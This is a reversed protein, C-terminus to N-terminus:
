SAFYFVAIVIAIVVLGIVAFCGYIFRGAEGEINPNEEFMKIFDDVAEQPYTIPQGNRIREAIGDLDSRSLFHDTVIMSRAKSENDTPTYDCKTCPNLAGHKISGCEICVAITV